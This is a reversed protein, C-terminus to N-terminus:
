KSAPASMASVLVKLALVKLWASKPRSPATRSIFRAAARSAQSAAARQVALVGSLGRKTAPAIPGIFLVSEM